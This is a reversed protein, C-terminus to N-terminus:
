RGGISSPSNLTDLRGTFTLELCGNNLEANLTFKESKIEFENETKINNVMNAEDLLTIKWYGINKRQM